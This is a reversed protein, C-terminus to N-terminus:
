FFYQQQSVLRKAIDHSFILLETSTIRNTSFNRGAMSIKLYDAYLTRIVESDNYSLIWNERSRLIEALREHDFGDKCTLYLKKGVKFYPPDLYAFLTPHRALSESFDACAVTLPLDRATHWFDTNPFLRTGDARFFVGDTEQFKKLYEKDHLTKGGFALRNFIYFLLARHEAGAINEFNSKLSVLAERDYQRLIKPADRIIECPNHLWQQWFNTLHSCIDYGHVRVGRVALNLEIAGGGFFPSVMEQTDAPILAVLRKLLWRKGGPYTIPSNIVKYM